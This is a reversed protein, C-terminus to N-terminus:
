GGVKKKRLADGVIQVRQFNAPDGKPRRPPLQLGALTDLYPQTKAQWTPGASAVGQPYRQAGKGAAAAEYKQGGAANIGRAFRGANAAATVGAVYSDNAAAANTQWTQGAGQVGRQYDPAAAQARQVFKTASAAADKVKIAM